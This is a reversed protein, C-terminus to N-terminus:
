LLTKQSNKFYLYTHVTWLQVKNGAPSFNNTTDLIEPFLGEVPKIHDTVRATVEMARNLGHKQAAAHLLAQEHTWVYRTHYDDRDQLPLGTRYGARTELIELYEEVASAYGEPLYQPEIHLLAYLSDTSPADIDGDADIATVFHDDRWLKEIGDHIMSEAIEVLEENNQLRGIQLLADANQFHPLSFVVPYTPEAKTPHNLESDKWYTVRLGFRDAGAKRPDEEFLGDFRGGRTHSLIYDISKKINTDYKEVMVKPRIKEVAAIGLIFLATTDCANYATSIGNFPVGPMEHHVKGEEKGTFPDEEDGQHRVSYAIQAELVDSDGSIMGALISDRNFNSSYNPYAARCLGNELALLARAATVAIDEDTVSPPLEGSKLQTLPATM